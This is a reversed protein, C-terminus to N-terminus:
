NNMNKARKLAERSAARITETVQIGGMIRSIEEIREEFDLEKVRTYTRGGEESKSV